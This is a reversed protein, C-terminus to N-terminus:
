HFRLFNIYDFHFLPRIIDIYIIFVGMSREIYINFNIKIKFIVNCYIPKTFIFIILVLFGFDIGLILYVM